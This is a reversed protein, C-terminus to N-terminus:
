CLTKENEAYLRENIEVLGKRHIIGHLIIADRKVRPHLLAYTSLRLLEQTEEQTAELGICLCLLRDRSAKRRGSFVQHVYVESMGAREALESKPIPDRRYIQALLAKIDADVLLEQNETIYKGIDSEEMLERRLEDTSKEEYGM